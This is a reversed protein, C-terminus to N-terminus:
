KNNRIEYLSSKLRYNIYRALSETSSNNLKLTYSFNNVIIVEFSKLDIVLNYAMMGHELNLLYSVDMVGFVAFPYVFVPMVTKIFGPIHDYKESVVFVFSVKNMGNSKSFANAENLLVSVEKESCNFMSIFIRNLLFMTNYADTTNEAKDPNHILSYTINFDPGSTNLREQLFLSRRANKKPDTSRTSNHYNYQFVAPAFLLLTDADLKDPPVPLADMQNDNFVGQSAGTITPKVYKVEMDIAEVRSLYMKRMESKWENIEKYLRGVEAKSFTRNKYVIDFLTDNLNYAHYRYNVENGDGKRLCELNLYFASVQIFDYGLLNLTEAVAKSHKDKYEKEVLEYRFLGNFIMARFAAVNEITFSKDMMNLLTLAETYDRNFLFEYLLECRSDFQIQTPLETGTGEQLEMPGIKELIRKLRKQFDPHTDFKKSVAKEKKNRAIYDDKFYELLETRSVGIESLLSPLKFEKGCLLSIDFDGKNFLPNEYQLESMINKILSTNFGCNRYFVLGLSDAQLEQAQAYSYFRSLYEDFSSSENFKSKDATNKQKKLAQKLNKKLGSVEEFRKLNHNLIYHALEHCLVFALAERSESQAILSSSAFIYGEGTTFANYIKSRLIYFRVTDKINNKELIFKGLSDLYRNMATGYLLNGSNIVNFLALGSVKKYESKGKGDYASSSLKFVAPMEGECMALKIKFDGASLNQLLIFVFCFLLKIKM